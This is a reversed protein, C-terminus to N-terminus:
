HVLSEESRTTAPRRTMFLRDSGPSAPLWGSATERMVSTLLTDASQLKYTQRFHETAGQPGVEPAGIPRTGESFVGKFDRVTTGDAAISFTGQGAARGTQLDMALLMDLNKTVGNWMLMGESHPVEKGNTLLSGSYWIYSQNTGWSFRQVAVTMGGPQPAVDWTGILFAFPAYQPNPAVSTKATRTAEWTGDNGETHFTGVLKEGQLEGALAISEHHDFVCTASLKAASFKGDQLKGQGTHHTEVTGTLMEGEVGLTLTGSASQGQLTFTINWEGAIAASPGTSHQAFLVSSALILELALFVAIARRSNM